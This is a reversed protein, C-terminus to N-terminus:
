EGTVRALTWLLWCVWFLTGAFLLSMVYGYPNRMM